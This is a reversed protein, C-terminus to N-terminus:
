VKDPEDRAEAGLGTYRGTVVFRATGTPESNWDPDVKEQLKKFTKQTSQIAENVPGQVKLERRYDPLRVDEGARVVMGLKGSEYCIYEVFKGICDAKAKAYWDSESGKSSM